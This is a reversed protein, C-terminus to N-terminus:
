FFVQYDQIQPPPRVGGQRLVPRPKLHTIGRGVAAFSRERPQSTLKRAGLVENCSGGGIYTCPSRSPFTRRALNRRPLRQGITCRRFSCAKWKWKHETVGKYPPPSDLGFSLGVTGRPLGLQSVRAQKSTQYPTLFAGRWYVISLFPGGVSRPANM